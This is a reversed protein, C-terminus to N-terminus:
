TTQAALATLMEKIQFTEVMDVGRQHVQMAKLPDVCEYVALLCPCEIKGQDPLDDIDTFWYEANLEQILDNEREHWSDFVAGIPLDSRRRMALLAEISYSIVVVQQKIPEIVPLVKDLFTETGHVTLGQRKLEIFVTVQPVTKIYGVLEELSSIKNDIFQNGFKGPEYAPLQMLEAYTKEHIMGDVGCLRQMDRDHFLVPVKDASLLVDFEVHKAGTEVAQQIALLTNEPYAHAYGRHAVLKPRDQKSQNPSM